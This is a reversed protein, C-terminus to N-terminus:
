HASNISYCLDVIFWQPLYKSMQWLPMLFGCICIVEINLAILGYSESLAVSNVFMKWSRRFQWFATIIICFVIHIIVVYICVVIFLGLEDSCPSKVGTALTWFTFFIRIAKMQTNHTYCVLCYFKTLLFCRLYVINWCIQGSWMGYM